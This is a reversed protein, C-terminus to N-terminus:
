TVGKLWHLTNGDMIALYKFRFWNSLATQHTFVSHTCTAVPVKGLDSMCALKAVCKGGAQWAL